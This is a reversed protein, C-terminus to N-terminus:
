GTTRPGDPDVAFSELHSCVTCRYTQVEWRPTKRVKLGFVGREPIGAIWQVIAPTNADGKHELVAGIDLERSGCQGCTRQTV